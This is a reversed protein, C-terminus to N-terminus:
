FHVSTIILLTVLVFPWYAVKVRMNNESLIFGRKSKACYLHTNLAALALLAYCFLFVYDIYVIGAGPIKSPVQLHALLIVGLLALCIRKFARPNITIRSSPNQNDSVTLLAFFLLSAALVLPLLYLLFGSRLDRMLRVNFYLEPTNFNGRYTETGFDTAYTATKFDFYTSQIRFNDLVVDLDVGFISVPGTEEYGQLDPVLMISQPFEKPWMRIEITQHDLPYDRYNFSSRLTTQFHWGIVLENGERRRFVERIPAPDVADPMIFGAEGVPPVIDDHVSDEYRQWIYGGLRVDSPYAYSFSQIFIGTKISLPEYMKPADHSTGEWSKVDHLLTSGKGILLEASKQGSQIIHTFLYLLVVILVCSLAASKWWISAHKM